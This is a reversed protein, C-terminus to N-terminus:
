YFIKSIEFLMIMKLSIIKFNWIVYDDKLLFLKSIEFLMIM